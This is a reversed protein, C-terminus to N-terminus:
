SWLGLRGYGAARKAGIGEGELAKCLVEVAADLRGQDRQSPADGWWYGGGEPLLGVHVRFRTRVVTLFTFPVPSLWDAPPQEGQYYKGMHPTLVDVALQFQGGEPLADHLVLRGRQQPVDRGDVAADPAGLLARLESPDDRHQERLWARLLGKLASGPIRPCGLVPDLSLSTELASPRGYDVLLRGQVEVTFARFGAAGYISKCAMGMREVAATTAPSRWPRTNGLDNPCFLRELELVRADARLEWDHAADVRVLKDLWLGLNDGDRPRQEGLLDNIANPLPLRM